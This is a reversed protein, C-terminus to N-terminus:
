TSHAYHEGTYWLCVTHTSVFATRPVSRCTGRTKRCTRYSLVNLVVFGGPLLAFHMLQIAHRTMSFWTFNQSYLHWWNMSLIHVSLSMCWTFSTTSSTIRPIAALILPITTSHVSSTSATMCILKLRWVIVVWSSGAHMSLGFKLELWLFLM